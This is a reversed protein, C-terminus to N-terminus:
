SIRVARVELPERRASSIGHPVRPRQEFCQGVGGSGTECHEFADIECDPESSCVTRVDPRDTSPDCIPGCSLGSDGSQCAQDAPCDAHSTCERLCTFSVPANLECDCSDFGCIGYACQANSDCETGVLRASTLDTAVRGPIGCTQTEHTSDQICSEDNPCHRDVVCPARSSTTVDPGGLCGAVFLSLPFILLAFFHQELRCHLSM